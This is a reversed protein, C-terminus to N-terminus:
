MDVIRDASFSNGIREREVKNKRASQQLHDVEARQLLEQRDAHLQSRLLQLEDQHKRAVETAARQQEEALRKSSQTQERASQLARREQAHAHEM